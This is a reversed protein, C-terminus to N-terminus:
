PVGYDSIVLAHLPPGGPGGWASHSRRDSVCCHGRSEGSKRRAGEHGEHNGSKALEPRHSDGVRTYPRGELGAGHPIRVYTASGATGAANVLNGEHVKTDKTTEARQLAAKAIM